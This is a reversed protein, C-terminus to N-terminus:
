LVHARDPKSLRQIATTPQGALAAAASCPIRRRSDHVACAPREFSGYYLGATPRIKAISCLGPFFSPFFTMVAGAGAGCM